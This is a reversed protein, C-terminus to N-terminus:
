FFPPLLMKKKEWAYIDSDNATLTVIKKALGMSTSVVCTFTTNFDELTVNKLLLGGCQITDDELTSTELETVRDNSHIDEPFSGNILWYLLAVDNGCNTLASCNLVMSQGIQAKIQVHDPGVIVPAAYKFVPSADVLFLSLGLAKFVSSLMM